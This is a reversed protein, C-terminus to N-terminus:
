RAPGNSKAHEEIFQEIEARRFRTIEGFRVCPLFPRKRTVHDYVWGKSVGLWEAVDAVTLLRDHETKEQRGPSTRQLDADLGNAQASAAHAPSHTRVGLFRAPENVTMPLEANSDPVELHSSPGAEASAKSGPMQIGTVGKTKNVPQHGENNLRRSPARDKLEIRGIAVTGRSNRGGL